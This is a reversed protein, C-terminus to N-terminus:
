ARRFSELTWMDSGDIHKLIYVSGDDAQVRFYTADPDYWRDM